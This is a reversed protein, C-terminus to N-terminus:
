IINAITMRSNSPSPKNVAGSEASLKGSDLHPPAEYTRRHHQETALYQVTRDIWDWGEWELEREDLHSYEPGRRMGEGYPPAGPQSSVTELQTGTESGQWIWSGDTTGQMDGSVYAIIEEDRDIPRTENRQLRDLLRTLLFAVYRGCSATVGHADGIAKFAQVCVLAPSFEERFLLFLLCRWLHTCLMTTASSALLSQWDGRHGAYAPPTSQPPPHMCRSLVRTTDLAISLCHDFAPYRVDPPCLPSINHRHLLLRANQLYIIPALSHPDLYHDSHPHYQVPFTALCAHFHRDFIELTAPSIVPSRLTKTLQGISRVVHITALLPTTQQGEPVRGSDSIFQDDVPCPLDVDCDQDHILLPKGLELSLLRPDLRILRV